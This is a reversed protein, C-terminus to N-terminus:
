VDITDADDDRSEGNPKNRNVHASPNFRKVGGGTAQMGNPAFLGQWGAAISHRIVERPGHGAQRLEALRRLQERAALETIPKRLEVRHKVWDAWDDADLWGPLEISLPAFGPSRKRASKQEKVTGKHNMSPDPAAAAGRETTMQVGDHRLNCGTADDNAGREARPAAMAGREVGGSHEVRPAAMAGRSLDIDYCVPRQDARRIYASVLQQNGRSIIGQKELERLKSQVTRASLGTDTCLTAVSPFAGKGDPGAYNALCLLVHRASAETVVQQGLAWTMAQVSM